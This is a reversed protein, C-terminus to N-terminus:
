ITIWDPKTAMVADLDVDVANETDFQKRYQQWHCPEGGVYDFNSWKYPNAVDFDVAQASHEFPSWHGFEVGRDHIREADDYDLAGDFASYSARCALATAMKLKEEISFTIFSEKDVGPLHWHGWEILQPESRIYAHLMRYALVQFEPQAAPHARLKFFNQHDTATALVTMHVFPELLRNSLSKHVHHINLSNAHAQASGCAKSWLLEAFDVDKGELQPGSQMGKQETGWYEPYATEQDVMELMKKFPIARSSAANRSFVRHTMLESHMFRPYTLLWTTLRKGKPNVSDLIIKCNIM